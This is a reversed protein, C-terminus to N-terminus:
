GLFVDLEDILLDQLNIMSIASGKYKMNARVEFLPLDGSLINLNYAGMSDYPALEPPPSLLDVLHGQPIERSKIQKGNYPIRRREDVISYYWQAITLASKIEKSANNYYRRLKYNAGQKQIFDDLISRVYAKDTPSLSDFLQSFPVRSMIGLYQKIGPETSSIINNNFLRYWYFFFLKCFDRVKPNDERMRNFIPVVDKKFFSMMEITSKTDEMKEKLKPISIRLKNRKEINAASSV